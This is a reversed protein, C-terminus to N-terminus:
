VIALLRSATGIVAKDAMEALQAEPLQKGSELWQRLMGILGYTMFEFFYELYNEPAVPYMGKIIERGNEHILSHLRNMFDTSSSNEFLIRCIATHEAVYHILPNLVPLLTDQQCPHRYADIMEQFDHIVEDEIDQLLHYTDNYHLYFTGRNLDARETIDKVSINKFDKEEMLAVLSDKLLRRTRRIRRDQKQENM